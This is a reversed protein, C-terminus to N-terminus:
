FAMKILEKKMQLSKGICNLLPLSTGSYGVWQVSNTSGKVLDCLLKNELQRDEFFTGKQCRISVLSRYLNYDSTSNYYIQNNLDYANEVSTSRPMLRTLETM